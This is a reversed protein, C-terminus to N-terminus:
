SVSTPRATPLRRAPRDTTSTAGKLVSRASGDAQGGGGAEQLGGLGRGDLHLGDEMVQRACGALM